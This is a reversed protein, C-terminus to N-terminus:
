ARPVQSSILQRYLQLHADACQDIHLLPLRKARLADFADCYHAYREVVDTMKEGLRDPECLFESTLMEVCGAVPTSVFVPSYFLAEIMALSFGESHSSMVQLHSAALREPIDTCFGAFVVRDSLGLQESLAELESRQEGDGVFTMRFDFKVSSLQRLLCDFGKIPTLRGVAIIRFPGEPSVRAVDVPAIGNYIVSVQSHAISDRVGESVAIVPAVRNFVRGKRPNHKTAVFPLKLLRNLRAFVETAKAFHTHVADPRIHKFLRWLELYFRPSWRGGKAQYFHVEVGDALANVFRANAPVVMSVRCHGALANVLPVFADGRGLGESAVFHCVHVMFVRKGRM